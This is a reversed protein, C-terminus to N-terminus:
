KPKNYLWLSYLCNMIETFIVRQGFGKNEYNLEFYTEAEQRTFFCAIRKITM